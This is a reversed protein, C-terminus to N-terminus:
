LLLEDLHTRVSDLATYVSTELNTRIRPVNSCLADSSNLTPSTSTNKRLFVALAEARLGLDECATLLNAALRAGGPRRGIVFRVVALEVDARCSEVADTLIFLPHPFLCPESALGPELTGCLDETVTEPTIPTMNGSTILSMLKGIRVLLRQKEDLWSTCETSASGGSEAPSCINSKSTTSDSIGSPM